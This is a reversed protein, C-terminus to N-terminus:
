GVGFSCNADVIVSETAVPKPDDWLLRPGAIM